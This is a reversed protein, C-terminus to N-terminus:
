IVDVGAAVPLTRKEFDSGRLQWDAHPGLPSM